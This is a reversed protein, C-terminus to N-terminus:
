TTSELGTAGVIGVARKASNAAALGTNGAGYAGDYGVFSVKSRDLSLALGGEIYTPAWGAGLIGPIIRSSVVSGGSPSYEDMYISLSINNGTSPNPGPEGYR